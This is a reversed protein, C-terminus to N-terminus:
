GARTVKTCSPNGPWPVDFRWYQGGGAGATQYYWQHIADRMTVGGVAIVDWMGAEQEGHELCSTIFGGNSTWAAPSAAASMNLTTQFTVAWGQFAAYQTANCKAAPDAFCGGWSGDAGDGPPALINPLQWQDYQSNTLFTPTEVHPYTFPATFCQWRQAPPTAAWCSADVQQPTATVNQMAAVYQYEGLAFPRGFVDAAGALFFGCDPFATVRLSANAARARVVGAVYDAHLLTSLGGASGGMILLEDAAALGETTLLADLVANLIDHGRFYIATGNVVVPAEVHGSFSAGDLYPLLAASWGNFDPNHAPNTDLIGGFSGQRPLLTSSGLTTKSRELAQQENWAWGGGQFSIVWRAPDGHKIYYAGPSGDLALAGTKDTDNLLVLNFQAAAVAAVAAATLSRM